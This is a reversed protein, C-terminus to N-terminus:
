TEVDLNTQLAKTLIVLDLEQPLYRQQAALSLTSLQSELNLEAPDLYKLVPSMFM